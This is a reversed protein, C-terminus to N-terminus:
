EDVLDTPVAAAKVKGRRRTAKERCQACEDESTMGLQRLAAEIMVRRQRDVRSRGLYREIHPLDGAVAQGLERVEYALMVLSAPPMAGSVGGQVGELFTAGCRCTICLVDGPRPLGCVRVGCGVCYVGDPREDPLTYLLVSGVTEAM